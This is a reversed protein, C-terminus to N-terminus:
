WLSGALSWNQYGPNGGPPHETMWFRGTAAGTTPHREVVVRAGTAKGKGAALDADSQVGYYFSSYEMGKIGGPMMEHAPTDGRDEIPDFGEARGRGKGAGKGDKLKLAAYKATDKAVAPSYANGALSTWAGVAKAPPKIAWSTPAKTPAKGGKGGRGGKGRGGKGGNVGDTYFTALLFLCVVLTRLKFDM